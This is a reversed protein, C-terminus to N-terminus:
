RLADTLRGLEDRGRGRKNSAGLRILRTGFEEAVAEDEVDFNTRARASQLLRRTLDPSLSPAVAELLSQPAGSLPPAHDFLMHAVEHGIIQERVTPTALRSYFIYDARNTPIWLGSASCSTDAFDWPLLHIPRGRHEALRDVVTDVQWLDPMLSEIEALMTRIRRRAAVRM